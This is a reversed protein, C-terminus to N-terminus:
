KKYAPPLEGELELYRDRLLTARSVLPITQGRIIVQDPFSSVELPDGSWVVLDAAKGAELSGIEREVGYVKAPNVTVAALAAEYPLGNAVALGAYQTINRSNHTDGATLAILVGAQHLRAANELTSGLSDFGGPLNRQPDLIVPVGAAALEEAVMWAEAGGVVVMKLGFDAKLQLAQSIDSAREVQVMLPTHGTLVPQLSELDRRSLTFDRHAGREWDRRHGSYDRAEELADRLAMVANIRSGGSLGSGAQGLAVVMAAGGRTLWPGPGALDIVAAQGSFISSTGDWGSGPAVAARTVGEIRNVGILVSRPNIAYRVDFSASFREGAQAADVTERVGSVERLGFETWADFLGPTVIKGTADIVTAGDPVALNRGVAAVRGDRILVTGGDIVGAKGLTHVTGGTVAITQAQAAGTCALLCVAVIRILKNM